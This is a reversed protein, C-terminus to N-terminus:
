YRCLCPFVCQTLAQVYFSAVVAHIIYHVTVYRHPTAVFHRIISSSFLGMSTRSSSFGSNTSPSPSSFPATFYAWPRPPLLASTAIISSFSPSFYPHFSLNLSLDMSPLFSPSRCLHFSSRFAFDRCCSFLPFFCPSVRLLSTPTHQM